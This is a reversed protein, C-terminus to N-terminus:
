DQGGPELVRVRTGDGSLEIPVSASNDTEDTEWLKGDPDAAVVLAYRGDSIGALPIQQQQVGSIIRFRWGPSIGQRVDTCQTYFWVNSGPVPTGNTPESDRVCIWTRRVVAVPEGAPLGAADLPRLEYQIFEPMHWHLHYGNQYGHWTYEGFERAETCAFSAWSVCQRATARGEAAHPEAVLDLAFDGRNEVAATFRLALPPDPDFTRFDVPGIRVDYPPLPVLNPLELPEAKGASPALLLPSLLLPSLFGLVRRAGRM